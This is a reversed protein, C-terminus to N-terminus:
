RARSSRPVYVPLEGCFLWVVAAGSLTQWRHERDAAECFDAFWDPWYVDLFDLVTAGDDEPLEEPYYGGNLAKEYDWPPPRRFWLVRGRRDPWRSSFRSLEAPNFGIRTFPKDYPTSGRVELEGANRLSKIARHLSVREARTTAPGALGLLEVTYWRWRARSMAMDAMFHSPASALFEGQAEEVVENFRERAKVELVDLVRRQQVGYGHSM